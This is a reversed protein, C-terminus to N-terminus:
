GFLDALNSLGPSIRPNTSGIEVAKAFKERFLPFNAQDIRRGNGFPVGNPRRRLGVVIFSIWGVVLTAKVVGDSSGNM